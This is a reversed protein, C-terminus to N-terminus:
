GVGLGPSLYRGGACVQRIAAPLDREVSEKLLYGKAGTELARAVYREDSHMSLVLVALEPCGMHICAAPELGDVLAVDPHCRNVQELAEPASGAEGVVSLDPEADLMRRLAMGLERHHEVLLVRTPM